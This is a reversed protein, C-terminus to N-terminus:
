LYPFVPLIFLVVYNIWSLIIQKNENILNIAELSEGNNNNSNPFSLFTHGKKNELLWSIMQIRIKDRAKESVDVKAAQVFDSTKKSLAARTDETNQLM